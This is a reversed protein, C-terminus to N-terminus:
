SKLIQAIVAASVLVLFFADRGISEVFNNVNGQLSEPIRNIWSADGHVFTSIALGLLAMTAGEFIAAVASVMILLGVKYYQAVLSKSVTRWGRVVDENGQDIPINLFELFLSKLKRKINLILM